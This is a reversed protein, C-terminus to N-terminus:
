ERLSPPIFTSETSPANVSKMPLEGSDAIYVRCKPTGKATGCKDIMYVVDMGELVTGFAVLKKDLYAVNATTIYFQSQNTNRGMNAMVLIGPRNQSVAFTEDDFKKGYISWGVDGGQIM